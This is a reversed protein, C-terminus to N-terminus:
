SNLAWTEPNQQLMCNVELFMPAWHCSPAALGRLLSGSLLRKKTKELFLHVELVKLCWINKKMQKLERTSSLLMVPFLTHLASMKMPLLEAPHKSPHKLSSFVAFSHFICFSLFLLLPLLFLFCFLALFFSFPLPLLLFFCLSSLDSFIFIPPFSSKRWLLIWMFVIAWVDSGQNLGLHGM